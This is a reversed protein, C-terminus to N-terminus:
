WDREFVFMGRETLEGCLSWNVYWPQLFRVKFVKCLVASQGATYGLLNAWATVIRIQMRSESPVDVIRIHEHNEEARGLLYSSLVMLSGHASGKWNMIWQRGTMRCDAVASSFLGCFWVVSHSKNPGSCSFFTGSSLLICSAHLCFEVM